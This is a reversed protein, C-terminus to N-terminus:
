LQIFNECLTSVVNSLMKRIHNWSENLIKLHNRINKQTLRLNFDAALSGKPSSPESETDAPAKNEVKHSIKIIGSPLLQGIDRGQERVSNGEGGRRGKRGRGSM